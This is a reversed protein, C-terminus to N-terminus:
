EYEKQMEEVNKEPENVSYYGEKELIIKQLEVIYEGRKRIELELDNIRVRFLTLVLLCVVSIIIVAINKYEQKELVTLNRWM